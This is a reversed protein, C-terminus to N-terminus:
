RQIKANYCCAFRDVSHPGWLEELHFFVDDIVSYDDFDVIKSSFDAQSNQDRPIWNMALQIQRRSAFFFTCLLTKCSKLRVASSFLGLLIKIIPTVVYRLVLYTLKLLQLHLSLQLM